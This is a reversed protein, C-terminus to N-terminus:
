VLYTEQPPTKKVLSVMVKAIGRNWNQDSAYRVNMGQLTPGHFYMGQENLYQKSIFQAVVDISEAKTKFGKASNYPSNDYAMYGFINNKERSIRSNGWGSEWAAHAILYYANVQYKKEAEVFAKGLGELGTGELLQDAQGVTLESSKRLDLRTVDTTKVAQVFEKHRKIRKKQAAFLISSTTNKLTLKESKAQAVLDEQITYKKWESPVGKEKKDNMQEIVPVVQGLLRLSTALVPRQFSLVFFLAVILLLTLSRENM